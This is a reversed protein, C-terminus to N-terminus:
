IKAAKVARVIAKSAASTQTDARYIFCVRDDFFASIKEVLQLKSHARQAVRTPLIATGVGAAALDSLVELNSSTTVRPFHFGAKEAKQLVVSTQHIAPDCLLVPVVEGTRSWFAVRDVCLPLIVLDPHPVPNVVIGFDLQHSIVSETVLRSLDHKLRIEIQPHSKLLGALFAPLAYRGVSPHCGITFRGALGEESQVVEARMSEWESLWTRVRRTLAEGARTIQVGTKGRVMLPTGIVHELRKLAVSLSPQSIGLREAARSINGTEALELFYVLDSHSPLERSMPDVIVM